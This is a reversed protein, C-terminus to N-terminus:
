TRSRPCLGVHGSRLSASRLLDFSSAFSSVISWAARRSSVSDSDALSLLWDAKSPGPWSSASCWAIPMRDAPQAVPTPFRRKPPRSHPPIRRRSTVGRDLFHARHLTKGVRLPPPPIRVRTVGKLRSVTKSIQAITKSVPQTSAHRARGRAAGAPACDGLSPSCSRESSSRWAHAGGSPHPEHSITAPHGGGLLGGGAEYSDIVETGRLNRDHVLCRM